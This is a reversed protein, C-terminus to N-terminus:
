GAAAATTEARLAALSRPDARGVLVDYFVTRSAVLATLAPAVALDCCWMEPRPFHPMGCEPSYANGAGGQRQEASAM